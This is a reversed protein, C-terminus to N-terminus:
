PQFFPSSDFQCNSKRGNFTLIQKSKSAYLHHGVYHQFSKSLPQFKAESTMKILPRCVFNHAGLTAFTGVKLIEPSGSPLRPVFHCRPSSGRAMCLTYQLPSPSPKRWTRATMLRTLGHNSTVQGHVLTNWNRM